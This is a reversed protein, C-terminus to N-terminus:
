QTRGAREASACSCCCGALLSIYYVISIFLTNYTYPIIRRYLLFFFFFFVSFDDFFYDLSPWFAAPNNHCLSGVTQCKYYVCLPWFIYVCVSLSSCCCCCCNKNKLPYTLTSDWQVASIATPYSAFLGREYCPEQWSGTAGLEPALDAGGRSYLFFIFLLFFLQQSPV